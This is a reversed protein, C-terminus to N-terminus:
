IICKYIAGLILIILNVRTGKKPIWLKQRWVSANQKDGKLATKHNLAEKSINIIFAYPILKIWDLVILLDVWIHLKKSSKVM